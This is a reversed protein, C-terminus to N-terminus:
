SKCFLVLEILRLDSASALAPNLKRLETCQHIVAPDKAWQRVIDIYEEYRAATSYTASTVGEWLFVKAVRSDWIVYNMPNLVHLLKSAGVISRNAFCKVEALENSTLLGGAKVKQLHAILQTRQATTHSEITRLMTPMWGYVMHLLAVAEEWDLTQRRAAVQIIAQFDEQAKDATIEKRVEASQARVLWSPLTM